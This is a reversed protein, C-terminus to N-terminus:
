PSTLGLARRYCDATERATREWTFGAAVRRGAAILRDAEPRDGLLAEIAEAIEPPREPDFLRAAGRAVEPLSARDSCAVPVDRVMAELVPLGFGEYLSPFVFCGAVGFLGELTKEDVWGLFRTDRELGLAKAQERLSGEWSTGYGPM